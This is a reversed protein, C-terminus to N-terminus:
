GKFFEYQGLETRSFDECDLVQVRASDSCGDGDDDTDSSSGGASSGGAAAKGSREAKLDRVARHLNDPDWPLRGQILTKNTTCHYQKSHYM